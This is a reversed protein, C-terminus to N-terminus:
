FLTFNAYPMRGEKFGAMEFHQQANTVDGRRMAAAVDPNGALYFKEDVLIRKPMRGELYGTIYYHESGNNIAGSAVAQAVDDNTSLYFEEDYFSCRRLAGDLLRFFLDPAITISSGVGQGTTVLKQLNVYQM